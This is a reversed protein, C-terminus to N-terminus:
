CRTSTSITRRKPESRSSRPRRERSIMFRHSACGTTPRSQRRACDGFTPFGLFFARVPGDRDVLCTLANPERQLVEAGALFPLAPALAMSDLPRDLFFDFDISQRHGLHLALATGGYLWFDPPTAMLEAWLRLQPPPLVDIRPSFTEPV